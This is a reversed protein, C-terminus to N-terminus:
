KKKEEVHDFAPKERFLFTAGLILFVGSLLYLLPDIIPPYNIVFETVGLKNLNPVTTLVIIIISLFIIPKKFANDKQRFGEVFLDKGAMVVLSFTVFYFIPYSSVDFFIKKFDYLFVLAGLCFLVVGYLFYKVRRPLLLSLFLLVVIFLSVVLQLDVGAM